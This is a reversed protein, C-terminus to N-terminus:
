ARSVATKEQAGARADNGSRFWPPHDSGRVSRCM